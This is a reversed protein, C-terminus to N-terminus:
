TIPLVIDNDNLQQSANWHQLLGDILIRHMQLSEALSPLQCKGGLLIDSVLPGSMESQLEFRGPLLVNNPGTFSRKKM